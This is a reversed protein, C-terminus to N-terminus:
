RSRKRELQRNKWSLRKIESQGKVRRLIEREREREEM